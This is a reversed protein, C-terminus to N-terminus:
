CARIMLLAFELPISNVLLILVRRVGYAERNRDRGDSNKIRWDCNGASSSYAIGYMWNIVSRLPNATVESEMM